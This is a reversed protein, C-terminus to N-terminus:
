RTKCFQSQIDANQNGFESQSDMAWNSYCDDILVRLVDWILPANRTLSQSTWELLRRIYVGGLASRNYAIQIWWRETRHKM